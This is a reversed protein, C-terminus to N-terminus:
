RSPYLPSFFRPPQGTHTHTHTHTYTHTIPFPFTDLVGNVAIASCDSYYCSLLLIIVPCNCVLFNDMNAHANWKSM